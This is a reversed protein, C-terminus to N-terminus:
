LMKSYTKKILSCAIPLQFLTFLHLVRYDTNVQAIMIVAQVIIALQKQLPDFKHYRQHM